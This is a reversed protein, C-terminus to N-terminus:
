RPTGIRPKTRQTAQPPVDHDRWAFVCIACPLGLGEDDGQRPLPLVCATRRMKLLLCIQKERLGENQGQDMQQKSLLRRGVRRCHFGARRALLRRFGSRIPSWAVLM